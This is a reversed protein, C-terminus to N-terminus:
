TTQPVAAPIVLAIPPSSSVTTDDSVKLMMRKEEENYLASLPTPVDYVDPSSAETTLAPQSILVAACPGEQAQTPAKNSDEALAVTPAEPRANTDIGAKPSTGALTSPQTGHVEPAIGDTSNKREKHHKTDTPTDEQTQNHGGEGYLMAALLPSPGMDVAPPPQYQEEWLTQIPLLVVLRFVKWREFASNGMFLQASHAFASTLAQDLSIAVDLFAPPPPPTKTPGTANDGPTAGDQQPVSTWGFSQLVFDLAGGLLLHLRLPDTPSRFAPLEKGFMYPSDELAVIFLRAIACHLISAKPFRVILELLADLTRTQIVLTDAVTCSVNLVPLILYVLQVHTSKFRWQLSAAEPSSSSFFSFITPLHTLFVQWILPLDEHPSGRTCPSAFVDDTAGPQQQEDRTGADQVAASARCFAAKTVCGCQTQQLLSNLVKLAYSENAFDTPLGRLDGLAAEILQEASPGSESLSLMMAFGLSGERKEHILDTLLDCTFMMRAFRVTAMDKEVRQHLREHVRDHIHKSPNLPSLQLLALGVLSEVEPEADAGQLENCLRVLVDRLPEYFIQVLLSELFTKQQRISADFLAMFMQPSYQDMFATLFRAFAELTMSDRSNFEALTQAILARPEGKLASMAALLQHSFGSGCLVWHARFATAYEEYSPSEGPERAAAATAKATPTPEQLMSSILCTLNDPAMLFELVPLYEDSLTTVDGLVQVMDEQHLADAVSRLALIEVLREKM